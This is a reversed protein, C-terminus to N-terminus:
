CTTLMAAYYIDDYILFYFHCGYETLAKIRSSDVANIRASPICAAATMEEHTIPWQLPMVLLENEESNMAGAVCCCMGRATRKELAEYGRYSLHRELARDTTLAKGHM